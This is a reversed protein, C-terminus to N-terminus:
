QASFLGQQEKKYAEYEKIEKDLEEYAKSARFRTYLQEEKEFQDLIIKPNLEMLACATITESGAEYKLEKAASGRIQQSTISKATSSFQSLIEADAALGTEETFSKQLSEIKTELMQALERRANMKAKSLAIELSRSEAIGVAAIGGSEVIKASQKQFDDFLSKHERANEISHQEPTDPTSACGAFLVATLISEIFFLAKKM